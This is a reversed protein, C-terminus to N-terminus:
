WGRPPGHWTQAGECLKRAMEVLLRAPSASPKSSTPEYLVKGTPLIYTTGKWEWIDADTRMQQGAFVSITGPFAWGRYRDTAYEAPILSGSGLRKRKDQKFREPRVLRRVAINEVPRNLAIWAAVVQDYTIRPETIVYGAVAAQITQGFADSRWRRARVERQHQEADATRCDKCVYQQRSAKWYGKGWAAEALTKGQGFSTDFGPVVYTESSYHSACVGNGCRTCNAHAVIGCHCNQRRM